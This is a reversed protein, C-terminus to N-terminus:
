RELVYRYLSRDVGGLDYKYPENGRLFDFERLGNEIAYRIGWAKLLLGVGLHRYEPDYGSNYLLLRGDDMFSMTASIRIGDLELFSLRLAREQAMTRAATELFARHGQDLLFHAKEDRSKGMLELFSGLAHPFDETYSDYTRYQVEGSAELRRFKRRLEHRDKKGLGQVYDEWTRPLPLYPAVDWVAREARWGHAAAAEDLLAASLSDARIGTLEIRKWGQAVGSQLVADWVAREEGPLALVDQYDTVDPDLAFSAHGNRHQFPAIGTLRDDRRVALVAHEATSGCCSLAWARQWPLSLFLCCTESASYLRGWEPVLTELSEWSATLSV